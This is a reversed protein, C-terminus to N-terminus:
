KREGGPPALTRFSYDGCLFAEVHARMVDESTMYMDLQSACAM